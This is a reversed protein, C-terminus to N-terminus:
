RPTAAETHDDVLEDLRSWFLPSYVSFNLIVCFILVEFFSVTKDLSSM